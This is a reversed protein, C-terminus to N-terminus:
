KKIPTGQIARIKDMRENCDAVSDKRENALRIAEDLSQEQIHHVECPKTLEEPIKVYKTEACAPLTLTLLLFLYKM